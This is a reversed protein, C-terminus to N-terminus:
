ELDLPRGLYLEGSEEGFEILIEEDFAEQSRLYEVLAAKTTKVYLGRSPSLQVWVFIKSANDIYYRFQLSDM